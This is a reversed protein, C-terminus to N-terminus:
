KHYWRYAPSSPDERYVTLLEFGERHAADALFDQMASGLGRARWEPAVAVTTEHLARATLGNGLEYRRTEFPIAGVLRSDSWATASSMSLEHWTTLDRRNFGGAETTFELVAAAEDHEAFRIEVDM